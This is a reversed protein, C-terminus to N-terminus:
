NVLLRPSQYKPKCRLKLIDIGRKSHGNTVIWNRCSGVQKSGVLAEPFHWSRDARDSSHKESRVASFGYGDFTAETIQSPYKVEIKGLYALLHSRLSVCRRLYSNEDKLGAAVRKESCALWAEVEDAIAREKSSQRQPLTKAPKGSLELLAL